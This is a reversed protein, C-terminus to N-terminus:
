IRGAIAVVYEENFAGKDIEKNSYEEKCKDVRHTRNFKHPYATGADRQGQVWVRRNESYKSPDTEEVVPKPKADRKADQEAKKIAAAAAKEAKKIAATRAKERKKLETKSVMEGTEKDL